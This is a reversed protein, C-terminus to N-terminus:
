MNSISNMHFRCGLSPTVFKLLPKFGQHIILIMKNKMINFQKRANQTLSKVVYKDPM